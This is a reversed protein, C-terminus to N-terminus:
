IFLIFFRIKMETAMLEVVQYKARFPRAFTHGGGNPSFKAM